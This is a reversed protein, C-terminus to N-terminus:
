STIEGGVDVKTYRDEINMGVLNAINIIFMHM